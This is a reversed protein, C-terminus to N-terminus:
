IERKLGGKRKVLHALRDRFSKVHGEEDTMSVREPAQEQHLIDGLTDEIPGLGMAKATLSEIGKERIDLDGVITKVEELIENYVRPGLPANEYGVRRQLAQQALGRLVKGARSKGELIKGVKEDGELVKDLDRFAMERLEGLRRAEVYELIGKLRPTLRDMDVSSLDDLDSDGGSKTKRLSTRLKKKPDKREEEEDEDEDDEDEDDGLLNSLRQKLELQSLNAGTAMKELIDEEKGKGQLLDQFDKVFEFATGSNKRLEDAELKSKDLDSQLKPLVFRGKQGLNLLQEQTVEEIGDPGTLKFSALSSTIKGDKGVEPIDGDNNTDQPKDAM